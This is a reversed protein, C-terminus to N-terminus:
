KKGGKKSSRALNEQARFASMEGILALPIPRSKPFQVSTKSVVFDALQKKFAEYVTFPPPCSIAYHDTYASFYFIWGHYKFAPLQYSIAEEADPVANHICARLAQLGEQENAPFDAIYDDISKYDTKAM